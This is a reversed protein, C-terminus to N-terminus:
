LCLNIRITLYFSRSVAKLLPGGWGQTAPSFLGHRYLAHGPDFGCLFQDPADWLRQALALTPEGRGPENLCCAIVAAAASDVAPLLALALAFAQAPQLALERVVWGMSGRAAAHPEPAPTALLQSLHQATLDEAFFRLKDDAYRALDLAGQAADAFPPLDAAGTQPGPGPTVLGQAARERWLWCVERRLRLTAQRLWYRTLPDAVGLGPMFAIVDNNM